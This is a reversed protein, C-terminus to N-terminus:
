LSNSLCNYMGSVDILGEEIAKVYFIFIDLYIFRIHFSVLANLYFFSQTVTHITPFPCQIGLHNGLFLVSTCLIDLKDNTVSVEGGQSM